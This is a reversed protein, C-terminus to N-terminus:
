IAFSNSSDEEVEPAFANVVSRCITTGKIAGFTRVAQDIRKMIEKRSNVTAKNRAGDWGIVSPTKSQLKLASETPFAAANDTINAPKRKITITETRNPARLFNALLRPYVFFYIVIYLVSTSM